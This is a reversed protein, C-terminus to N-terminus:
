KLHEEKQGEKKSKKVKGERWNKQEKTGEKEEKVSRYFPVCFLM